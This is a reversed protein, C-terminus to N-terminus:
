AVEAIVVCQIFGSYPDDFYGSSDRLVLDAAVDVRNGSVNITDLDIEQELLHHDGNRYKVNFGKLMAQAKIVRGNFTATAQERQRRGRTRDFHLTLERFELAM